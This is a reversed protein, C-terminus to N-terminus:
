AGEGRRHVFFSQLLLRCEAELVGQSVKPHHNMAAQEHLSQAGGLFGMKPDAFAYVVRDLRALLTAGSCMPCPEKTVYLTCGTLRWDGISRSAQTIALVEAHATADKLLEVQNYASAIVEGGRQIVAGIPIEAQNWADIAQNYALKMFFTDDQQLASPYLKKFPCSQQLPELPKLNMLRLASIVSVTSM